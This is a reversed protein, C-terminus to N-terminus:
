KQNRERRLYETRRNKALQIEKRPTKQTKKIFGNTIIIKNGIYFFFLARSVNVSSSCRLEFIGDDLHKTYPERLSTGKEQLIEMLSIMKARTKVDLENLFDEIPQKGDETEYFDVQFNM